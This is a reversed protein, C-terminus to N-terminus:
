ASEGSKYCWGISVLAVQEHLQFGQPILGSISALFVIFRFIKGM